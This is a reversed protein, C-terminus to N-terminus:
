RHFNLKYNNCIKNVTILKKKKKKVVKANSLTLFYVEIM